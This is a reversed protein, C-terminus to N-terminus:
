CSYALILADERGERAPYYKVRRGVENFGISCYLNYARKNSERVELFVMDAGLSRARDIMHELLRRGLGQGQYSKRVCLILLHAEGCVVSLVAHGYLQQGDEALWCEHGSNLCDRFNGESWPFDYAGTEVKHVQPIDSLEMRRLYLDALHIALM